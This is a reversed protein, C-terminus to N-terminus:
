NIESVQLLNDDYDQVIKNIRPQIIWIGIPHFWVLFFEGVFDNFSVERQLEATKITKATFYLCYFMCFIMFLHVPFILAFLGFMWPGPQTNQFNYGSIVFGVVALILIIYALPLFFFIKFRTVKMKLSKPIAKQLGIAVSWQWGFMVGVFVIMIVPFIAFIGLIHQPANGKAAVSFISAFLIIDFILPLGFTALFIQWHKAKLFINM